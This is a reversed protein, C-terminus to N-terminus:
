SDPFMFKAVTGEVNHASHVFKGVPKCRQNPAGKRGIKETPLRARKRSREKMTIYLIDGSKRM